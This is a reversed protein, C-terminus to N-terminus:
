TGVMLIHDKDITVESWDDKFCDLHTDLIIRDFTTTSLESRLRLVM